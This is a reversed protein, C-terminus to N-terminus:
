IRRRKGGITRPQPSQPLIDEPEEKPEKKRKQETPIPVIGAGDGVVNILNAGEPVIVKTNHKLIAEATELKKLAVAQGTFHKKSATYVKEIRKAEAEAELQIAKAKGEARLIQSEREGQAEKIRARKEGDAETEKATAYDTAAAKKKEATVVENMQEQVSGPPEIEKLEARVIEIGWKETEKQLAEELKKNIKNRESNTEEFSLTGIIARLTTRALNVIQYEYNAVSYQSSKVDKESDKVKFYVQADVSANLSDKTIIEQEDADVMQETINVKVANEILPIKLAFGQEVYRNYRGLREILCRETPRVIVYSQSAIAVAGLLGLIVVIGDVMGNVELATQETNIADAIYALGGVGIFFAFLILPAAMWDSLEKGLIGEGENEGM